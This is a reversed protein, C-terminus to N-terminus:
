LMVFLLYYILLNNSKGSYHGIHRAFSFSFQVLIHSISFSVINIVQSYFHTLVMILVYNDKM